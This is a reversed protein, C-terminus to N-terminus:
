LIDSIRSELFRVMKYTKLTIGTRTTKEILTFYNNDFISEELLIGMKQDELLYSEQNNFNEQWRIINELKNNGFQIKGVPEQIEEAYSFVEIIQDPTTEVSDIGNSIKCKYADWDIENIYFFNSRSYLNEKIYGFLSENRYTVLSGVEFEQFPSIRFSIKFNKQM